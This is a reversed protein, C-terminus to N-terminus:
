NSDEKGIQNKGGNKRISMWYTTNCVTKVSRKNSEVVSKQGLAYWVFKVTEFSLM